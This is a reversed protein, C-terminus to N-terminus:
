YAQPAPSKVEYAAPRLAALNLRASFFGQDRDPKARGGLFPISGPVLVILDVWGMKLNPPASDLVGYKISAM